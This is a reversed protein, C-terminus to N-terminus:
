KVAITINGEAVRADRLFKEADANKFKPVTALGGEPRLSTDAKVQGAASLSNPVVISKGERRNLMDILQGTAMESLGVRGREGDDVGIASVSLGVSQAIGVIISARAGMLEARNEFIPHGKYLSTISEGSPTVVCEFVTEPYDPHAYLYFFGIGPSGGYCANRVEVSEAALALSMRLAIHDANVVVVSSYKALTESPNM